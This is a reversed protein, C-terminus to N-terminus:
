RLRERSHIMPERGADVKMWLYSVNLEVIHDGSVGFDENWMRDLIQAM